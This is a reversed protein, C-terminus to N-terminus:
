NKVRTKLKSVRLWSLLRAFFIEWLISIKSHHIKDLYNKTLVELYLFILYFDTLESPTARQTFLSDMAPRALLRTLVSGIKNHWYLRSMVTVIKSADLLCPEM